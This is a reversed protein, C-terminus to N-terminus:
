IQVPRLTRVCATFGKKGKLYLVLHVFLSLPSAYEREASTPLRDLIPIYENVPTSLVSFERGSEGQKEIGWDNHEAGNFNIKV